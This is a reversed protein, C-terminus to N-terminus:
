DETPIKRFLLAFYQKLHKLADLLPARDGQAKSLVFGGQVVTQTYLALSEASVPVRPPYKEIAARLDGVLTQAHADITAGCAARIADSTAFTEQVTTGAFCTFAELPGNAISARFDIYGIVRDLPDAHDHYDANAFLPATVTDWHGAAAAGLAEKSEFHHFFAGKTVGAMRCLQDVSTASWGQRRVLSLAADLLAARADGRNPSPNM